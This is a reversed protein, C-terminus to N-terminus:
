TFEPFGANTTAFLTHIVITKKTQRFQLRIKSFNTHKCKM